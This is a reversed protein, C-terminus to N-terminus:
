TIGGEGELATIILCNNPLAVRLWELFVRAVTDRANELNHKAGCTNRMQKSVLIAGAISTTTGCTDKSGIDKKTCGVLIARM